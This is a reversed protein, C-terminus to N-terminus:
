QLGCAVAAFINDAFLELLREVACSEGSWRSRWWGRVAFVVLEVLELSLHVVLVGCCEFFSKWNWVCSLVALAAGSNSQV